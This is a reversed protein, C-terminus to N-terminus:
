RFLSKGIRNYHAAQLKLDNYNGYSVYLNTYKRNLEPVATQINVIGAMTNRGYLTSQPGRLIEIFRIDYFDFDFLSKNLMPIGDVYLGVAPQDIRSGIGRIYVSSTIKSGYDPIYFNPAFSSLEKLSNVDQKEMDLSSIYTGAVPRQPLSAAEKTYAGDVVFEELEYSLYNTSDRYGEALASGALFFLFYVPLLKASKKM